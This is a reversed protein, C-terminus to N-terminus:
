EFISMALPKIDEPKLTKKELEGSEKEAKKMIGTKESDIARKTELLLGDKLKVAEERAKELINEAKERANREKEQVSERSKRITEKAEEESSRFSDITKTFELDDKHEAHAEKM